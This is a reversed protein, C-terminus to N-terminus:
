LQVLCWSQTEKDAPDASRAAQKMIEIAGNHDGYLTRLQAVRAYSSTEPRMDVMKQAAQVAADYNGLEMNADALVGYLYPDSPSEALLENTLTMSQDFRHFSLHISAKLKRAIADKPDAALAKDIETDAKAAYGFDATQRVKKLYHIALATYGAPSDPAKDILKLATAAEPDSDAVDLSTTKTEPAAAKQVSCGFDVAAALVLIAPLLKRLFNTM